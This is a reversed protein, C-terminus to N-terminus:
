GDAPCNRRSNRYGLLSRTWIATGLEDDGDNGADHLEDHADTRREYRGHADHAADRDHDSRDSGTHPVMPRANVFGQALAVARAATRHHEVAHHLVGVLVADPHDIAPM